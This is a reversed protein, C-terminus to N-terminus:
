TWTQHEKAIGLDDAIVATLKSKHYPSASGSLRVATPVPLDDSSLSVEVALDLGMADAKDLIYAECQTKISEALASKSLNQGKGMADEADLTFQDTISGISSLRVGAIPQIVAFAMFAGAILKVLAGHSGKEGLFHVVLGCVIAACLIGLLYERLSEM